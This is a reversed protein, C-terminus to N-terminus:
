EDSFESVSDDETTTKMRKGEIAYHHGKTCGPASGRAECCDWIFGDPLEERSQKSDMIGHCNEDWDAWTDEDDYDIEMERFSDGCRVCIFFPDSAKRKEGTKSAEARAGRLKVLHNVIQREISGDKCLALVVARLEEASATDVIDM